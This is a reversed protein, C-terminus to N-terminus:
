KNGANSSGSGETMAGAESAVKGTTPNVNMAEIQHNRVVDIKYALKGQQSQLAAAIAKGNNQENNNNSAQNNNNNQVAGEAANIADKLSNPASQVEKLLTQDKQSLESVQTTKGNGVLDGSNADIRGQWIANNQLTTVRYVPKGNEDQFAAMVAKGNTHDQATGIAQELSTKAQQFAQIQSHGSQGTPEAPMQLPNASQSANSAALALPAAGLLFAAALAPLTGTMRNM